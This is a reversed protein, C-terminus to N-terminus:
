ALPSYYRSITSVAETCSGDSYITDGQSPNTDGATYLFYGTNPETDHLRWALAPVGSINDHMPDREFVEFSGDIEAEILYTYPLDFLVTTNTGGFGDIVDQFQTMDQLNGPFHVTVNETGVLMGTFAYTYDSLYEESLAPFYLQTLSQCDGFCNCLSNDSLIKLSLFNVYDLSTNFFCALMGEMDVQYLSDLVVNSLNECDSFGTALSNESVSVLFEMNVSQLNECGYAFDLMSVENIDHLANLTLYELNNCFAFCEEMSGYGGVSYLGDLSVSQVGSEYFAYSLAQEGTIETLNSLDVTSLSNCGTFARFMAGAGSLTELSSFDVNTIYQNETYARALVYPSMDTAGSIDVVNSVERSNVLVGNLVELQLYPENGGGGGGGTYTGTVGLINVNNKINGPIINADISSTVPSVNVQSFGDVGSSPTITQASTTPTVPISELTPEVNVNAGSYKAVDYVGNEQITITEALNSNIIPM